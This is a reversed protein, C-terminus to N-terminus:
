EPKRDCRARKMRAWNLQGSGTKINDRGSIKIRRVTYGRGHALSSLGRWNSQLWKLNAESVISGSKRLEYIRTMKRSQYVRKAEELLRALDQIKEIATDVAMNRVSLVRETKQKGRQKVLPLPPRDKLMAADKLARKSPMILDHTM